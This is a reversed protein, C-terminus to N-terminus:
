LEEHSSCVNLDARAVLPELGEQATGGAAASASAPAAVITPSARGTAMPLFQEVDPACAAASSSSAAAGGVLMPTRM